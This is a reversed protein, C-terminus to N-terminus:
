DAPRIASIVFGSCFIRWNLAACLNEFLAVSLYAPLFFAFYDSARYFPMVDIKEFGQQRFVKAMDSPSCHDFFAPYGTVGVASPRLYPILWKQMVPGVLRLAISYPHWKSPMYHHMAGGPRLASFMSGSAAKNDPVHEMLTISILMDAEVNVPQEISQVIFRDYVTYCDPREEIDLGIYSFGHGRQLLPRDIGGVELIASPGLRAIDDAIRRELEAKYSPAGFVRPLRRELWAAACRNWGIFRKLVVAGGKTGVTQNPSLM